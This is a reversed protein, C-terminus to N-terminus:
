RRRFSWETRERSPELAEVSSLDLVKVRQGESLKQLLVEHGNKFRIADRYSYESATLQTFTVEEAPGIQLDRQLRTPIDQLILRAGPPVCVAPVPNAKPPNFSNKLTLWFGQPRAHPAVTIRLDTASAFGVPGTPFRHAVLDEGEEALRNPIAMLSYDCM